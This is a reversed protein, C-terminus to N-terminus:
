PGPCAKRGARFADVDAQTAPRPEIGDDFLVRWQGDAGRHWVSQFGGLSYQPDEPDPTAYLAPGSSLAIDGEGGIVVSTPYWALVLGSGDIIKAWRQVIAERGRQPHPSKAAFVAGAHVHDAFAKADHKDVSDAFTLERAWVACEDATWTRAPPAPPTQAFAPSAALVATAFTVLRM